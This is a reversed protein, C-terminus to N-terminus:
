RRVVSVRMIARVEHILVPVFYAATTCVVLDGAGFKFGDQCPQTSSKWKLRKLSHVNVLLPVIAARKVHEQEESNMSLRLQAQSLRNPIFM